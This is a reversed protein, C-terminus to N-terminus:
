ANGNAWNTRLTTANKQDAAKRGGGFPDYIVLSDKQVATLNNAINDKRIELKHGKTPLDRTRLACSKVNRKKKKSM